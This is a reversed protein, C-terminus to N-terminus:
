RYDSNGTRARRSSYGSEDYQSSRSSSRYSSDSYRSGSGSSSRTSRRAEGYDDYRGSSASRTSRRTEGYGDDYRSSASSRARRTEGYDDYRSSSASRSSRRPEDEYRSRQSSARSSRRYDYDDEYRSSRRPEGYDSYRGSSASRSRQQPRYYDDEYQSSRSRQPRYDDEYQPIRRQQPRGRQPPRRNGGGSYGNAPEGTIMSRIKWIFRSDSDSTILESVFVLAILLISVIVTTTIGTPSQIYNLFYGMKPLCFVVKGIIDSEQVLSSDVTDNADGKTRYSMVSPNSEDPVLEVIRHTAIVNESLKFSITDGVELSSTDIEKVYILSGVPYEPEMSGTLVGYVQFGFLRIISVSFALFVVLCVLVSTITRLIVKVNRRMSKRRVHRCDSKQIKAFIRLKARSNPVIYAVAVYM